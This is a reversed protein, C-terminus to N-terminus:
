NAATGAVLFCDISWKLKSSTECNILHMKLTRWVDRLYLLSVM